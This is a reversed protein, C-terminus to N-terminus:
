FKRAVVIGIGIASVIVPIMWAATTQTGALLVATTDLSIMEGGIAMGDVIPNFIGFFSFGTTTGFIMNLVTDVSDTIDVWMSTGTDFHWLTLSQEQPITLGTDDYTIKIQVSGTFSGDFDITICAPSGGLGVLQFGMNPPCGSSSDVTLIGETTVEDFNFNITEIGPAPDQVDVDVNQGVPVPVGSPAQPTKDYLFAAGANGVGQNDDRVSGVLLTDGDYAVANGFFTDQNPNTHTQLLDFTTANYEYVTGSRFVPPTDDPLDDDPASIAVRNGDIAVSFGFRDGFGPDPDPTPNTFTNLLSGSTNYLFAMGQEFDGLDQPAGVMFKSGSISVTSGFRDVNFAGTPPIPNRHSQLLNGSLDYQYVAGKEVNTFDDDSAGIVVNNGDIDVAEGFQDGAPDSSGPTDPSPNIFELVLNGTAANFMYAHGNARNIPNVTLHPAGIVVNNGDIAVSDGFDDSGDATPNVFTKQLVGTSASFLYAAANGGPDGVVLNDGDIDVSTGFAAGGTIAMGPPFPHNITRLFTGTSVEYLHVSGAAFGMSAPFDKDEPEGVVAIDGDVAVATGFGDNIAPTPSLLTFNPVTGYAPNVVLSIILGFIIISFLGKVKM